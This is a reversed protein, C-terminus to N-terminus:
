RIVASLLLRLLSFFLDLDTCAIIDINEVFKKIDLYGGSILQFFKGPREFCFCNLVRSYFM